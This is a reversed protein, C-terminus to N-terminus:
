RFSFPDYTKKKPTTPKTAGMPKVLLDITRQLEIPGGKIQDPSVTTITTGNYVVITIDSLRKRYLHIGLQHNEITRSLSPNTHDLLITKIM